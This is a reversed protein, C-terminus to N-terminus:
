NSTTAGQSSNKKSEEILKNQEDVLATYSDYLANSVGLQLLSLLRDKEEYTLPRDDISMIAHALTIRQLAEFGEGQTTEKSPIKKMLSVYEASSLTQLVFSHEGLKVTKTLHGVNILDDFEKIIDM